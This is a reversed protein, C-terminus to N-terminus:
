LVGRTGRVRSESGAESSVRSQSPNVTLQMEIRAGPIFLRDGHSVYHASMYGTNLPISIGERGPSKVENDVLEGRTEDTSSSGQQKM